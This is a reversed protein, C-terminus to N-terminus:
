EHLILKINLEVPNVYYNYSGRIWEVYDVDSDTLNSYSPCQNFVMPSSMCVFLNNNIMVDNNQNTVIRWDDKQIIQTMFFDIPYTFSFHNSESYKLNDVLFNAFKLSGIYAHSQLTSTPKVFVDSVKTVFGTPRVGLWLIDPKLFFLDDILKESLLNVNIKDNDVYQSYYLDVQIDDELYLVYEWGNLVQLKAIELHSQTCGYKIFDPNKVICADFREVGEISIKHLEEFSNQLRDQRDHLNIVFGKDCLKKGFWTVM